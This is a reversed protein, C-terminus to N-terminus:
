RGGSPVHRRLLPSTLPLYLVHVNTAVVSRYFISSSLWIRKTTSGAGLCHQAQQTLITTNVRVDQANTDYRIARYCDEEESLFM